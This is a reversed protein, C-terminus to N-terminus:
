KTGLCSLSQLLTHKVLVEQTLQYIFDLSIMVFQTLHTLRGMFSRIMSTMETSLIKLVWWQSEMGTTLWFLTEWQWTGMNQSHLWDMRSTRTHLLILSQRASLTMCVLSLLCLLEWERLLTLLMTELCPRLVRRMALILLRMSGELSMALELTIRSRTTQASEEMLHVSTCLEQSM